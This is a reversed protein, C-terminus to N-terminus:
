AHVVIIKKGNETKEAYPQGESLYDLVDATRYQGGQIRFSGEEHSLHTFVGGRLNVTGYYSTVFNKFEGGLIVLTKEKEYSYVINRFEGNHITSDEYFFLSSGFTGGYIDSKGRMYVPSTFTGSEVLGDGYGYVIGTFRGTRITLGNGAYVPGSFNGDEILVAGIESRVKGTSSIYKVHLDGDATFVGANTKADEVLINGSDLDIEANTFTGSHVVLEMHGDIYSSGNHSLLTNGTMEMSSGEAGTLVRVGDSLTTVICGNMNVHGSNHLLTVAGDVLHTLAVNTLQLNAGPYVEAITQSAEVRGLQKHDTVLLTGAEVRFVPRRGGSSAISEQTIVHGNLDFTTDGTIVFSTSSAVRIPLLVDEELAYDGDLYLEFHLTSYKYELSTMTALVQTLTGTITDDVVTNPDGIAGYVRATVRGNYHYTDMMTNVVMNNACTVEGTEYGAAVLTVPKSVTVPETNDTTLTISDGPLAAELAAALSIYRDAGIIAKTPQVSTKAAATLLGARVSIETEGQTMASIEGGLVTAVAPDASRWVLGPWGEHTTGDEFHVTVAPTQVAGVAFIVDGIEISELVGASVDLGGEIPQVLTTLNDADTVSLADATEGNGASCIGATLAAFEGGNERLVTVTAAAIDKQHETYNDITFVAEAAGSVTITSVSGNTEFTATYDNLSLQDKGTYYEKALTELDKDSLKTSQLLQLAKDVTHVAQIRARMADAPDTSNTLSLKVANAWASSDTVKVADAVGVSLLTRATASLTLNGSYVTATGYVTGNETYNGSQVVAVDMVSASGTYLANPTDIIVMGTVLGNKVTTDATQKHQVTVNGLVSHGNLDLQLPSSFVVDGEVSATLVYHVNPFAWKFDSSDDVPAFYITGDELSRGTFDKPRSTPALIKGKKDALVFCNDNQNWLLTFKGSRQLDEATYGKAEIIELARSLTAAKDNHGERERLVINLENIFAGEEKIKSSDRNIFMSIGVLAVVAALAIISFNRWQQKTYRHIFAKAKEIIGIVFYGLREMLGQKEM